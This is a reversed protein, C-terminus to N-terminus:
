RLRGRITAESADLVAVLLRARLEVPTDAGILSPSEFPDTRDRETLLDGVVEPEGPAPPPVLHIREDSSVAVLDYGCAALLRHLTEASPQRRGNEIASINAQKIGSVAALEGQTLGRDTRAQRLAAGHVL